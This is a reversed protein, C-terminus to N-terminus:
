YGITKDLPEFKDRLVVPRKKPLTRLGFLALCYAMVRDDYCGAAANTSGNDDIQYTRLEKVLDLDVIGSEELRLMSALNDVILPKSKATTTFGIKPSKRGEYRRDWTEEQYM